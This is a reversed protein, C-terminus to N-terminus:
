MGPASHSVGTPSPSNLRRKEALERRRAKQAFTGTAYRSERIEIRRARERELAEQRRREEALREQRLRKEEAAEQARYEALRQRVREMFARHEKM